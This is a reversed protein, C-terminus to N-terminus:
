PEEVPRPRRWVFLEDLKSESLFDCFASVVKQHNAKRVGRFALCTPLDFTLGSQIADLSARLKHRASAIAPCIFLRHEVTDVVDPCFDCNPSDAEGVMALIVNSTAFGMRLRAICCQHRRSVETSYLAPPPPKTADKHLQYLQRGHGSHRWQGQRRADMRRKIFSKVLKFPKRLFRVAQGSSRSIDAAGKAMVDASENGSIGVHGPIWDIVVRMPTQRLVRKLAAIRRVITWYSCDEGPDERRAALVAQQCDSFLFIHSVQRGATVLTKVKALALEIAWLETAYNTAFLGAPQGFSCVGDRQSSTIIVSSGGGGREDTFASGDTFVVLASASSASAEMVKRKAYVLAQRLQQPTRDGAAGLVPWALLRDDEHLSGSRPSKWPPEFRFLLPPEHGVDDMVLGLHHAAAQM